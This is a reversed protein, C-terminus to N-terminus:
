PAAGKPPKKKRPKAGAPRGIEQLKALSDTIAQSIADALADSLLSAELDAGIKRAVDAAVTSEGAGGFAVTQEPVTAGILSLRVSRQLQPRRGPGPETLTRKADLIKVTIYYGKLHEKELRAALEGPDTPFDSQAPAFDDAHRAIEQTLLKKVVEHPVDPAGEVDRLVLCYRPSAWAPPGMALLVTLLAALAYLPRM